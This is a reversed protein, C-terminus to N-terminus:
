RSVRKLALKKYVYRVMIKAFANLTDNSNLFPERSVIKCLHKHRDFVRSLGPVGYTVLIEDNKQLDNYFVGKRVYSVKKNRDIRYIGPEIDGSVYVPCENRTFLNLHAGTKPRAMARNLSKIDLTYDNRNLSDLIQLGQILPEGGDEQIMSLIPFAALMRVNAEVPYLRNTKKELVFDIGFIGRFSEKEKFFEGVKKAIASAQKEIKQSFRSSSWDHGCFVGSRREQEIVDRADIIQKQLNTYLVGEKTVCVTLSPACSRHIFQIVKLPSNRSITKQIVANGLMSTFDSKKLIFFTGSGLASVPIQVVFHRGLSKKLQDYNLERAKIVTYPPSPIALADLLKQFNIKNEYKEYMRSDNPIPIYKKGRLNKQIRSSINFFLLVPTNKFSDLYSIIKKNKFLDAPESAHYTKYNKLNKLAAATEDLFSVKIKNEILGIEKGAKKCALIEFHNFLRYAGITLNYPRAGVGFIPNNVRRLYDKLSKLDRIVFKKM